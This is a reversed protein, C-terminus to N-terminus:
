GQRAEILEPVGLHVLQDVADRDRVVAVYATDLECLLALVHEHGVIVLDSYYVHSIFVSLLLRKSQVQIFLLM